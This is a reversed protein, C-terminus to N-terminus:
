AFSEPRGLGHSFRDGPFLRRWLASPAASQQTAVESGLVHLRDGDDVLISSPALGPLTFGSSHVHDIFELLEALVTLTSVPAAQRQWDPAFKGHPRAYVVIPELDSESSAFTFPDRPNEIELLDIPEAWRDSRASGILTRVETRTLARRSQVYEVDDLVPYRITRLFVDLWEVEDTERVRKATFDFNYLIKKGAYLGHWPTERVVSTVVYGGPQQAPGAGELREGVTLKMRNNYRDCGVYFRKCRRSCRVHM